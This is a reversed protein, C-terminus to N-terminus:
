SFLGSSSFIAVILGGCCGPSLNPSTLQSESALTQYSLCPPRSLVLSLVAQLIVGASVDTPFQVARDTCSLLLTHLKICGLSFWFLHKGSCEGSAEPPVPIRCHSVAYWGMISQM